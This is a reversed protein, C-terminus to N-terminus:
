ILKCLSHTEKGFCWIDKMFNTYVHKYIRLLCFKVDVYCRKMVTIRCYFPGYQLIMNNSEANVILVANFFTGTGLL